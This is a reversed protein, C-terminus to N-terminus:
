GFPLDVAIFDLTGPVSRVEIDLGAADGDVRRRLIDDRVSHTEDAVSHFDFDLTKEECYSERM